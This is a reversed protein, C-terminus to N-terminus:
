GAPLQCVGPIHSVESYELAAFTPFHTLPLVIMTLNVSVQGKAIKRYKQIIRVGLKQHHSNPLAYQIKDKYASVLREFPHRVIVFSISGNM